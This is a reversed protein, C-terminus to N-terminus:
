EFQRYWVNRFHVPDGSDVLGLPQERGHPEYTSVSGTKNPGDIYLRNQVVVGNLLVTARAPGDLISGGERFRPGEWIIDLSQWEGPARVPSALPAAQGTYAGVWHTPAADNDDNDLLQIEYRDALRVGSNARNRGAGTVDEPIRFEVHVRGDGFAAESRIDGSGPDIAVYGDAEQWGPTGGDPGVWGGLDGGELLVTADSPPDDFGDGPDIRRVEGPDYAPYASQQHDDGYTPQYGSDDREEPIARYWVNQFQVPKGHDQLYLPLEPPHPDYEGPGSATTSGAVNIHPQVVVGNFLMTARAPVAVQGDEFRPARWVIDFSQWETSPRAPDVLPPSQGYYTGAMKDSPDTTNNDLVQFEYEGMMFVGSNGNIKGALEDPVSFEVHLHCDGIPDITEIGGTDPDIEVYGDEVNWPADGGGVAQWRELGDVGDGLLVTADSPPDGPVEAPTVAPPPNEVGPQTVTEGPTESPSETPTSEPSDSPTLTRTPESTRTNGPTATPAETPTSGPSGTSDPTEGADDGTCGALGVVGLAALRELVTRRDLGDAESRNDRDM